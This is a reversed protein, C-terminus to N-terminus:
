RGARSLHCLAVALADSVDLPKPVTQPDLRVQVMRRVQEKSARGNGTLASKIHTPAYSAVSLGNVAATLCIVGRAHGM